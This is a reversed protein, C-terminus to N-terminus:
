CWCHAKVPQSWSLWGELFIPLEELAMHFLLDAGIATETTV